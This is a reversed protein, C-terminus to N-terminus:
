KKKIRVGGGASGIQINGDGVASQSGGAGSLAPAASLRKILGFILLQDSQSCQHWRALLARDEQSVKTFPKGERAAAIMERAAQALGTVVYDSDFGLQAGLARVRDEPFADRKKRDNLATPSMGLRAAVEKDTQVQLVGKLRLLAAEFSTAV